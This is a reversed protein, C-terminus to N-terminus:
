KFKISIYQLLNIYSIVALYNRCQMCTSCFLVKLYFCLLILHVHLPATSQLALRHRRMRVPEFGVATMFIRM